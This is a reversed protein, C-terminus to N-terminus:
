WSETHAGREKLTLVYLQFGHFMKIQVTQSLQNRIATKM